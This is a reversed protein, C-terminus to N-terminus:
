KKKKKPALPGQYTVISSGGHVRPRAVDSWCWSIAHTAAAIGDLLIAVELRLAMLQRWRKLPLKGRKPPMQLWADAAAWTEASIKHM